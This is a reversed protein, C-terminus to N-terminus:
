LPLANNANQKWANLVGRSRPLFSLGFELYRAASTLPADATKTRRGRTLLGACRKNEKAGRSRRLFVDKGVGFELCGGALTLPASNTSEKWANLAM